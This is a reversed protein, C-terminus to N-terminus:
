KTDVQLPQLSVHCTRGQKEVALVGKEWKDQGEIKYNAETPDLQCKSLNFEQYTDNQALAVQEIGVEKLAAMALGANEKSNWVDSFPTAIGAAVLLVVGLSAIIPAAVKKEAIEWAIIAVTFALVAILLMGVITLSPITHLGLDYQTTITLLNMKM